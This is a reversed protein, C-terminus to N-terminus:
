NGEGTIRRIELLAEVLREDGPNLIVLRELAGRERAVDEVRHYIGRLNNLMRTLIQRKTATVLHEDALQVDQGIARELRDVLDERELYVGGHYPDLIKEESGLRQKVLFHGPFSVGHLDLGLRRGVEIYVVSLTIPIGVRRDLVENLFSNRPDYYDDENGRFGLDDFLYKNLAGVVRGPGSMGHGRIAEAMEDLREVYHAVDLSAYEPEAILLAAAALDLEAEPRRAVHAFLLYAPDM